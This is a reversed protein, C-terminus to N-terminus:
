EIFIDWAFIENIKIYVNIEKEAMKWFCECLLIKKNKKFKYKKLQKERMEHM